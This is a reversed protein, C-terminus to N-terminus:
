RCGQSRMLPWKKLVRHDGRGRDLYDAKVTFCTDIVFDMSTNDRFSLSIADYGSTTAFEVGELVKGAVEPFYFFRRRSVARSKSKSPRVSEQSRDGSKRTKSTSRARASHQSDFVGAHRPSVSHRTKAKSTATPRASEQSRDGPKQTKPTSRARASHQIDFVGAHRPSVSQRTKAKSTATSGASEQSGDGPERPKARSAPNPHASKQSRVETERPKRSNRKEGAALQLNGNVTKAKKRVM